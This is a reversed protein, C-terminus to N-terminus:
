SSPTYRQVFSVLIGVRRARVNKQQNLCKPHSLHPSQTLCSVLYSQTRYKEQREQRNNTTLKM